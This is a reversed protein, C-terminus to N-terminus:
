SCDGAGRVVVNFDVTSGASASVKLVYREGAKLCLPREILAPEDFVLDEADGCDGGCRSIDVSKAVDGANTTFVSFFYVASREVQFTRYTWQRGERPGLADANTCDLPVVGEYTAGREPALVVAVRDCEPLNDRFHTKPCDPYDAYDDLIEEMGRGFFDRSQADLQAFSDEWASELEFNLLADTGFERRLFSVFHALRVYDYSAPSRGTRILEGADGDPVRVLDDGFYEAFGEALPPYSRGRLVHVLEHEHIPWRSVAQGDDSLCGIPGDHCFERLQGEDPIWNLRLKETRGSPDVTDLLHGAVQDDYPLTGGCLEGLDRDTALEFYEGEWVVPPYVEECSALVLALSLTSGFRGIWGGIM